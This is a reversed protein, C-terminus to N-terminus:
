SWEVWSGEEDVEDGKHKIVGSFCKGQLFERSRIWEYILKDGPNKPLTEIEEWSKAWFPKGEDSKKLEGKGDTALYFYVYFNDPNKWDPFDRDKNDFLITGRFIPKILKIGTEDETERIASELRGQLSKLGKENQELKGGPLTCYRSNPDDKRESKELILIGRDCSLYSLTGYKMFILAFDIKYSNNHKLFM